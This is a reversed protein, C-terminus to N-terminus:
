AHVRDPDADSLGEEQEYVVAPKMGIDSGLEILAVYAAVAAM